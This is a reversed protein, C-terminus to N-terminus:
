AGKFKLSLSLYSALHKHQHSRPHTHKVKIMVRVGQVESGLISWVICSVSKEDPLLFITSVEDCVNVDM